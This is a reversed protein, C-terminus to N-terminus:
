AHFAPSPFPLFRDDTWLRPWPPFFLLDTYFHRLQAASFLSVTVAFGEERPRWSLFPALASETGWFPSLFSCLQNTSRDVSPFLFFSILVAMASCATSEESPPNRIIHFRFVRDVFFSLDAVGSSFDSPFLVTIRPRYVASFSLIMNALVKFFATRKGIMTVFFPPFFFLLDSGGGSPSDLHAAANAVEQRSFPIDVTELFPLPSLPPFASASCV